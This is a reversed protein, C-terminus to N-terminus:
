RVPPRWWRRESSNEAVAFTELDLLDTSLPFTSGYTKGDPGKYSVKVTFDKAATHARSTYVNSLTMGPPWVPIPQEYRKLIASMVRDHENPWPDLLVSVDAAPSGGHNVLVLSQAHDAYTPRRLEAVIVPRTRVRSDRRISSLARIGVFGTIGAALASVVAAVAAIAAWTSQEM